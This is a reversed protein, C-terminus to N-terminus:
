CKPDCTAKCAVRKITDPIADCRKADKTCCVRELWAPDTSSFGERSVFALQHPTASPRHPAGCAFGGQIDFSCVNRCPAEPPSQM